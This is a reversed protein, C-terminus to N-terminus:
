GRSAGSHNPLGLFDGPHSTPDAHSPLFRLKGGEECTLPGLHWSSPHQPGMAARPALLCGPHLWIPLSGPREAYGGGLESFLGQPFYLEREDQSLEEKPDMSKSCFTVRSRRAEQRQQGCRQAGPLSQARTLVAPLGHAEVGVRERNEVGLNYCPCSFSAWRPTPRLFFPFM